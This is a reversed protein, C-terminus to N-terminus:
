DGYELATRTFERDSLGADVKLAAVNLITSRKSQMNLVEITRARWASGHKEYHRYVMTKLLKGSRDYYESKQVQYTNPDVWTLIKSYRSDSSKVKSEIVVMAASPAREEKVVRNEFEAYNFPSFDELNFESDLFHQSKNEGVVRHAKRESPMYLWQDERSGDAVSLFAVGSMDSPSLLRVLMQHKKGSKRKIELEWEKSVGNNEIVKMKVVAVEDKTNLNQEVKKLIVNADDVAFARDLPWFTSVASFAALFVSTTLAREM